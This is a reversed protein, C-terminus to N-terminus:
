YYFTLYVSIAYFITAVGAIAHALNMGQRPTMILDEMTNILSRLM